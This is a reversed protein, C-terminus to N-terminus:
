RGRQKQERKGKRKGGSIIGRKEGRGKGGVIVISIGDTGGM